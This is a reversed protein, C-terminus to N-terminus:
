KKAEMYSNESNELEGELVKVKRELEDIQAEQKDILDKNDKVKDALEDKQLIAHTHTLATLASTHACTHTQCADNFYYLTQLLMVVDVKDSEENHSSEYKKVNRYCVFSCPTVFMADSYMQHMQMMLVYISILRSLYVYKDTQTPVVGFKIPTQKPSLSPM